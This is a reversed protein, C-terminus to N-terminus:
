PRYAFAWSGYSEDRVVQWTTADASGRLLGGMNTTALFGNGIAKM